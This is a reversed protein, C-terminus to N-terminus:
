SHSHHAVHMVASALIPRRSWKGTNLHRQQAGTPIVFSRTRVVTHPSQLRKSSGAGVVFVAQVQTETGVLAYACLHTGLRAKAGGPGRPNPEMQHCPQCAWAIGQWAAPGLTPPCSRPTPSGWAAGGRKDPGSGQLRAHAPVPETRWLGARCNHGRMEPRAGAVAGAGRLGTELRKM